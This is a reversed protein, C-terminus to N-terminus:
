EQERLDCRCVCEKTESEAKSQKPPGSSLVCFLAILESMPGFTLTIQCNIITTHQM